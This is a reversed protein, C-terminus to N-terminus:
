QSHHSEGPKVLDHKGLLDSVTSVSSFSDTSPTTDDSSSLLDDVCQKLGMLNSIGSHSDDSADKSKQQGDNSNYDQTDFHGTGPMKLFDENRKKADIVDPALFLFLSDVDERSFKDFGFHLMTNGYKKLSKESSDRMSSQQMSDDCKSTSAKEDRANQCFGPGFASNLRTARKVGSHSEPCTSPNKDTSVSTTVLGGPLVNPVGPLISDLDSVPKCSDGEQLSLSKDQHACSGVSIDKINLFFGRASNDIAPNCTPLHKQIHPLSLLAGSGHLNRAGKMDFYGQGLEMKCVPTNLTNTPNTDQADTLKLPIFPDSKSSLDDIKSAGIDFVSQLKGLNLDADQPAKEGNLCQNDPNSTSGQSLGVGPLDVCTIIPTSIAGDLTTLPSSSLDLPRIINDIASVSSFESTYPFLQTANYTVDEEDSSSSSQGDSSSGTQTASTGKKLIPSHEESVFIVDDEEKKESCLPAKEEKILLVDDDDEDDSQIIIPSDQGVDMNLCFTRLLSTTKSSF